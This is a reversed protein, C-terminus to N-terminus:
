RKTKIHWALWLMLVPQMLLRLWAILPTVYLKGVQLPAQQLMTIHVPIFAALMFILLLAGWKRTSPFILMSGFVFECLGAIYNLAEPQPLYRPIIKIYGNPHIFHNIGAAIYGAILIVLSVKKLM